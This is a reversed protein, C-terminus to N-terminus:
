GATRSRFAAIRKTRALAALYPTSGVRTVTDPPLAPAVLEAVLVRVNGLM